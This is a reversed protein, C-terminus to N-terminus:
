DKCDIARCLEVGKRRQAHLVKLDRKIRKRTKGDPSKELKEELAKQRKKLKKLLIRLDERKRKQKKRDLDFYGRLRDLLEKTAM